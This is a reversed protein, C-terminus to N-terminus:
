KKKAAFVWDVCEADEGLCLPFYENEAISFAEAPNKLRPKYLEPFQVLGQKDVGKPFSVVEPYYGILTKKEFLLLSFHQLYDDGKVRELGILTRDQYDGFFYLSVVHDTHSGKMLPSRIAYLHREAWSPTVWKPQHKVGDPTVQGVPYVEANVSSGILMLVVAGLWLPRAARLRNFFSQSYRTLLQTILM